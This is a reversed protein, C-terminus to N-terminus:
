KEPSIHRSKLFDEVISKWDYHSSIHEIASTNRQVPVPTALIKVISQEMESINECLHVWKGFTGADGTNNCVIDLGVAMYERIKLIARCNNTFSPRMYAVGIRNKALLLPIQVHDVWGVFSFGDQFGSRNVNEQFEIRRVGDGIVVIKVDPLKRCINFFFPLLDEFDSSIGLSAMYVVSNQQAIEYLKPSINLFVSSVGQHLMYVKRPPIKLKETIYNQLNSTHCTITDFFNPFFDFFFKSISYKIGSDFYGYDLDDIDLFIRKGLFKAVLAPICNNPAPKLAYFVKCDINIFLFFLNVLTSILIDVFLNGFHPASHYEIGSPITSEGFKSSREIYVVQHGNSVLQEAINLFRISSGSINTFPSILLFKM